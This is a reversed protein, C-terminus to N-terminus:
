KRLANILDALLGYATTEAGPNTEGISLCGLVDTEFEVLSSTGEVNYLTSSSAVIEPRVRARVTEGKRRASCVLKWRKGEARAARVQEATLARIGEREVQGPKLPIGMLVTVLAAVKIAADWGDVDGAPDTEAIGIAQAHRVAEEFSGGNEMRTLILNSTSNLVGRFGKLQAAPLCERFLSFIPAGDMVTSEFLFHLGKERALESLEQYAHVVPGKNATVVEMGALLAQRIHEVAPQGSTHDVPTNEFLV